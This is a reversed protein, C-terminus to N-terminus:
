LPAMSYVNRIGFRNVNDGFLFCQHRHVEYASVDPAHRPLRLFGPVWLSILSLRSRNLGSFTLIRRGARPAPCCSKSPSNHPWFTRSAEAWKMEFRLGVGLLFFHGLVFHFSDLNGSHVASSLRTRPLGFDHSFFSGCRGLVDVRPDGFLNWVMHALWLPIPPSAAGPFATVETNFVCM